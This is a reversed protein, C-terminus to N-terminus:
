DWLPLKEGCFEDNQPFCWHPFTVTVATALTIQRKIQKSPYGMGRRVADTWEILHSEKQAAGCHACSFRDGNESVHILKGEDSNLFQQVAGRVDSDFGLKLRQVATLHLEMGCDSVPNTVYYFYAPQKCRYCQKYFFVIELMQAQKAKGHTCFRIKSNLLYGAFDRLSYIEINTLDGNIKRKFHVGIEEGEDVALPFAAVEHNPAYDHPMKRFFWCDRVHDRKYREHRRETEALTQASWQVEFALKAGSKEAFVDARWDGYPYEIVVQYGNERCALAIEAKATLHELTEFKANCEVQSPLHAFHKLGRPSTRLYAGGTCCPLTLRKKGAQVESQLVAWQDDTLFPAIVSNKDSEIIARLPM